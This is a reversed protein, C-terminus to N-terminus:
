EKHERMDSWGSKEDAPKLVLEPVTLPEVVLSSVHAGSPPQLNAEPSMEVLAINRTSLSLRQIADALSADIVVEPEGRRARMTRPPATKIVRASTLAPAVAPSPRAVGLVVDPQRAGTPMKDGGVRAPGLFALAMAAAAATFAVGVWGWRWGRDRSRGVIGARIKASLDPTAEVSLLLRLDAEAEAVIRADTDSLEDIGTRSM